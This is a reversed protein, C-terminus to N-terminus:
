GLRCLLSIGRRQPSQDAARHRACPLPHTRTISRARRVHQSPRRLHVRACQRGGGCLRPPTVDPPAIDDSPLGEPPKAYVAHATMTGLKAVAGAAITTAAATIGADRVRQISEAPGVIQVGPYAAAIRAISETCTHDGHDHTLLVFDTHLSAEHLPPRTHIFRDAPREHPYYPDVQVITGQADKLGFTSQGFWHIGVAGERVVLSEFPHM